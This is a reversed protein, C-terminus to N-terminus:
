KYTWKRYSIDEHIKVLQREQHPFKIEMLNKVIAMLEPLHTSHVREILLRVKKKVSVLLTDFFTNVPKRYVRTIM